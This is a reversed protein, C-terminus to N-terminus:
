PVLLREGLYVLAVFFDETLNHLHGLLRFLPEDFRPSIVIDSLRRFCSSSADAFRPVSDGVGRCASEGDRASDKRRSRMMSALALFAKRTTVRVTNPMAPPTQASVFVGSSAMGSRLSTCTMM